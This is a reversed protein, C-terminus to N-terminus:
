PIARPGPLVRPDRCVLHQVLVGALFAVLREGVHKAARSRLLFFLCYLFRLLPSPNQMTGLRICIAVEESASASSLVVVDSEDRRHQPEHAGRAMGAVAPRRAL